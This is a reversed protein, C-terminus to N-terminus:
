DTGGGKFFSQCEPYIADAQEEAQEAVQRLEEIVTGAQEPVKILEEAKAHGEEISNVVEKRHFADPGQQILHLMDTVGILESVFNGSADLEGILANPATENKSKLHEFTVLHV